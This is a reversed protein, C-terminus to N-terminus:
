CGLLASATICHRWSGDRADGVEVGPLWFSHGPLGLWGGSDPAGSDM